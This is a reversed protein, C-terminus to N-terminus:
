TQADLDFRVAAKRKVTVYLGIRAGRECHVVLQGVAAHFASHPAVIELQQVLVVSYFEHCAANLIKERYFAGLLRFDFTGGVPLVDGIALHFCPDATLKAGKIETLLVSVERWDAGVLQDRRLLGGAHSGTWPFRNQMLRVGRLPFPKSARVQMKLLVTGPFGKMKPGWIQILHPGRRAGEGTCTVRWFPAGGEESMKRLTGKMGEQFSHGCSDDALPTWVAEHLKPTSVRTSWFGPKMEFWDEPRSRDVSQQLIPQPGTGYSTYTVPNGPEGSRPALPGRWLGGRKFRVVDGPRLEAANVKELSRWATQPSTGAAADDGAASDVYYEAAGASLVVMAAGAIGLLKKM